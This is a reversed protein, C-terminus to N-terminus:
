KDYIAVLIIMFLSIMTFIIGTLISIWLYEYDGLSAIIVAVYVGSTIGSTYNILYNKLQIKKSVQSKKMARKMSIWGLGPFLLAFCLSLFFGLGIIYFYIWFGIALGGVAGSIINNYTDIVKRENSRLVKNIKKVLKM